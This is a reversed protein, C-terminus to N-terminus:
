VFWCCRKELFTDSFNHVMLSDKRASVLVLDLVLEESDLVDLDPEPKRRVGHQHRRQDKGGNNEYYFFFFPLSMACKFLILATSSTPAALRSRTKWQRRRACTNLLTRLALPRMLQGRWDHDGLGIVTRSWRKLNHM